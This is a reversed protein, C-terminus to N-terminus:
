YKAASSAPSKANTHTPQNHTLRTLIQPIIQDLLDNYATTGLKAIVGVKIREVLATDGAGTNIHTTASPTASTIDRKGPAPLQVGLNGSRHDPQPMSPEISKLRLGLVMAKERALDTLVVDDNVEIETVGAAQLDEIDRVTYFTKM